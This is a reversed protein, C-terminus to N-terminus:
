RRVPPRAAEAANADGKPPHLLMKQIRLLVSRQGELAGARYTDIPFNPNAQAFFPVNTQFYNVLDAIVMIGDANSFVRHYCNIVQQERARRQAELAAAEEQAHVPPQVSDNDIM